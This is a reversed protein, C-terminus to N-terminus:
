GINKISSKEVVARFQEYKRELFVTSNKYMLDFLKQRSDQLVWIDWIQTDKIKHKVTTTFSIGLKTYYEELQQKFYPSGTTIKPRRQSVSGDGDFMGRLINGNLSINFKFTKSKAPTLGLSILYAHTEYNGFLVTCINNGAANIKYYAKLKPNIFDRYKLVHEIDKIGLHISYKTSSICGDAALFGIWYESEETLPLFPNNNVVRNKGGRKDKVKM